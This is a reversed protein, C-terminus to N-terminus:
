LKSYNQIVKKIERLEDFSFIFKPTCVFYRFIEKILFSITSASSEQCKIFRM